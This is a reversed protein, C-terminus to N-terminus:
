EAGTGTLVQSANHHLEALATLATAIQRFAQDTEEAPLGYPDTIDTNTSNAALAEPDVESRQQPLSATILALIEAATPQDHARDQGHTKARLRDVTTVSALTAAEKVTFTHKLAAPALAVVQKRHETTMVLVLDSEKLVQPTAQTAHFTTPDFLPHKGTLSERELVALADPTISRGLAADLGASRIVIDEHDRFAHRLLAEAM